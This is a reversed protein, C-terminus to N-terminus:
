RIFFCKRSNTVRIVRSSIAAQNLALNCKQAALDPTRLGPHPPMAYGPTHVGPVRALGDDGEEKLGPLAVDALVPTRATEGRRPM